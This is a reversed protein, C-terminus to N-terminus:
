VRVFEKKMVQKGEEVRCMDYMLCISADEKMEKAVVTSLRLEECYTGDTNVLCDGLEGKTRYTTEANTVDEGLFLGKEVDTKHIGHGSYFLQFVDSSKDLKQLERVVDKFINKSNVIEIIDYDKDKFMEKAVKLDQVPGELNKLDSESYDVNIVLM